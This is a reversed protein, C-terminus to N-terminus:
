PIAVWKRQPHTLLQLILDLGSMNNARFCFSRSPDLPRAVTKYVYRWVNVDVWVWAVDEWFWMWESERTRWGEWGVNRDPTWGSFVCFCSCLSRDGRGDPRNANERCLCSSNQLNLPQPVESFRLRVPASRSEWRAPDTSWTPSSGQVAFISSGLGMDDRYIYIYVALIMGLSKIIDVVLVDKKSSWPVSLFPGRQIM